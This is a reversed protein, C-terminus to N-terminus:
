RDMGMMERYEKVATLLTSESPKACEPCLDIGKEDFTEGCRSSTETGQYDSEQQFEKGCGKFDAGTLQTLKM